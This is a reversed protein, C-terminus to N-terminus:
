AISPNKPAAIKELRILAASWYAKMKKVERVSTLKMHDVAVQTKGAGKAIFNVGLRSKNEDWAARLSKNKTATTIKLPAARLWTRRKRADTWAAYVKALPAAITRGSNAAFSGSSGQFKVRLGRAREYEVAVMQRWWPALRHKAGVLAAIERHPMQTAGAQDLVRFWQTWNKGTRTEVISDSFERSKGKKEKM